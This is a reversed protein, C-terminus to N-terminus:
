SALSGHALMKIRRCLGSLSCYSDRNPGATIATHRERWQRGAALPDSVAASTHGSLRWAAPMASLAPDVPTPTYETLLYSQFSINSAIQNRM